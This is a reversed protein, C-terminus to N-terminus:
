RPIYKNTRFTQPTGTIRPNGTKSTSYIRCKLRHLRGVLWGPQDINLAAIYAEESLKPSLKVCKEFLALVARMLAETPLPKETNEELPYAKVMFYSESPILEALKLRRQGQVWATTAGDPLRLLKAIIGECGIPFLNDLAIEDISTDKRAVIAIPQQNGWAEELARISAPRRVLLQSIM